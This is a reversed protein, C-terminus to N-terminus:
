HHNYLSPYHHNIIIVDNSQHNVPVMSHISHIIVKWIKPIEDDWSIFEYKESSNFGGALHNSYQKTTRNNKKESKSIIYIIM